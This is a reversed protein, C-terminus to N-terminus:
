FRILNSKFNKVRPTKREMDIEFGEKSLLAAQEQTGGPYYAMLEGNQKIVRWYPVNQTADHAIARLAKKMTVPCTGQVEFQEALKKRLLDTTIIQREPIKAILTAVAAQSPLLMKGSTGFFGVQSVKIDVILDEQLEM